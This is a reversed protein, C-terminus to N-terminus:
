YYCVLATGSDLGPLHTDAAEAAAPPIKELRELEQAGKKEVEDPLKEKM